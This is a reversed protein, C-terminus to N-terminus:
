KLRITNIIDNVSIAAINCNQKLWNLHNQLHLYFNYIIQKWLEVTPLTLYGALEM